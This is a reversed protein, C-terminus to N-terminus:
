NRDYIDGSGEGALNFYSHSALNVVTTKDTTAHYDLRLENNDTLTYTVSLGSTERIDKKGTLRFINWSCRTPHRGAVCGVGSQQIRYHWWALPQSRQKCGPYIGKRDLTFKGKGIRNACRGCIAGMYPGNGRIYEDITDYGQM